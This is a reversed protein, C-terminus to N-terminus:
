SFSLALAGRVGGFVAVQDRPNARVDHEGATVRERPIREPPEREPLMQGHEFTRPTSWRTEAPPRRDLLRDPTRPKRAIAGRGKRCARCLGVRTGPHVRM